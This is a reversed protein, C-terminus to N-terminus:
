HWVYQVYFVNIGDVRCFTRSFTGNGSCSSCVTNSGGSCYSTNCTRAKTTVTIPLTDSYLGANNYVRIYVNTYTTKYTLGTVQVVGDTNETQGKENNGIMCVFKEIGSEEDRAGVSVKFSTTGAEGVLSIDGIEPKTEDKYVNIIQSTSKNGAEDIVRISIEYEGDTKISIPQEMLMEKNQIITNGTKKDKATYEYGIVRGAEKRV